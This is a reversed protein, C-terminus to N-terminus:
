AGPIKLLVLQGAERKFLWDPGAPAVLDPGPATEVFAGCPVLPTATSCHAQVTVLFSGPGFAQSADVIGSSEWTGAVAGPDLTQKVAAVPAFQNTGLDYRWIRAFPGTAAPFANHGGPDEQVMVSNKTTELNDPQHLVGPNNYGGLDANILISLSDVQKPDDENLVLKFIRGNPYPGQTGAPGRALRGTVANAVARPEGTDAMYVVNPTKRDYAIDELRIFQFVNNDNSWNELGTQGGDAIADPVQIFEGSVSPVPGLDGYDNVTPM